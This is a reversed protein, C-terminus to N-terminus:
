IKLVFLKIKGASEYVSALYNTSGLCVSAMKKVKEEVDKIRLNANDACQEIAETNINLLM